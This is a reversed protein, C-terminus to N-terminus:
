AGGVMAFGTETVAEAAIIAEVTPITEDPGIRMLIEEILAEAHDLDVMELCVPCRRHRGLGVCTAMQLRWGDHSM